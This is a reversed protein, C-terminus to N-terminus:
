RRKQDEGFAKRSDGTKRDNVSPGGIGFEKSNHALTQSM